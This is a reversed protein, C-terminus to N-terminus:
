RSVRREDNVLEGARPRYTGRITDNTMMTM